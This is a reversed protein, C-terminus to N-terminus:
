PQPQESSLEFYTIEPPCNFRLRPFSIGEMGLGANVYLLGGDLEYLGMRYKRPYIPSIRALDGILPLRVQGGHTHGSLILDVGQSAAAEVLDAFPPHYLLISFEAVPIDALISPLAASDRAHDLGNVPNSYYSLGALYLSGGPLDLRTVEDDLMQINLGEILPALYAATEQVHGQILFIGYPAHLQAFFSRTEQLAQPEHRFDFNLYDGTLVILDPQLDNIIAITETERRTLREIHIDSLQVIRLPRDPLFDPSEIQVTRVAVNFPEVYCGYFLFALLTLNVLWQAALLGNVRKPAPPASRRAQERALVFPISLYLLTRLLTTTLWIPEVQGYSLNLYPLAAFLGWDALGFFLVALVALWRAARSVSLVAWVGRVLLLLLALIVVLVLIPPIHLASLLWSFLFM